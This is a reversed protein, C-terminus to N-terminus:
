NLQSRRLPNPLDVAGREDVTRLAGIAKAIDSIAARMENIVSAPAAPEASRLEGLSKLCDKVATQLEGVQQTLGMHAQGPETAVLEVLLASVREREDVLRAELKAELRAELGAAWQTDSIRAAPQPEPERRGTAAWSRRVPDCHWESGAGDRDEETM